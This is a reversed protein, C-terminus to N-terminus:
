DHPNYLWETNKSKSIDAPTIYEMRYVFNLHEQEERFLTKERLNPPVALYYARQIFSSCVFNDVNIVRQAIYDRVRVGALQLTLKNMFFSFLRTYDYPTDIMDLFFALIRGREEPTLDPMRKFGVDHLKRDRLYKHLRHIEIGHDLAEVILVEPLAGPQEVVQFVLADHNWHSHTTSRVAKFIGGKSTRTLVIDAVQLHKVAEELSDYRATDM